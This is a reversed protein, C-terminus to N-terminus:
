RSYYDGNRTSFWKEKIRIYRGFGKKRNLANEWGAFEVYGDITSYINKDDEGVLDLGDHSAGKFEQTVRFEGKYPSKMKYGRETWIGLRM